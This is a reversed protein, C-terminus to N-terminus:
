IGLVWWWYGLLGIQSASAIHVKSGLVSTDFLADMYFITQSLSSSPGNLLPTEIAITAEYFAGAGTDSYDNTSFCAGAFLAGQTFPTQYNVTFPKNVVDLYNMGYFSYFGFNVIIYSLVGGKLIPLSFSQHYIDGATVPNVPALSAITGLQSLIIAENGTNAAAGILNGAAIVNGQSTINGTATISGTAAISNANFTAASSQKVGPNPYNNFLDGGAPGSPPFTTAPAVPVWQSGNYTLRDNPALGTLNIPIGHIYGLTNASSKGTVDGNMNVYDVIVSTIVQHSTDIANAPISSQGPSLLTRGLEISTLNDPVTTTAFINLTDQIRTYGIYPVFTSNFDPHGPPPGVITVPDEQVTAAQAVVYATVSTGGSVPPVLSTFDITYSSSDTGNTLGHAGCYQGSNFLCRFPSPASVGVQLTGNYTYVLSNSNAVGPLFYVEGGLPERISTLLQSFATNFINNNVYEYQLFQPQEM